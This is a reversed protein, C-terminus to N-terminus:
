AWRVNDPNWPGASFSPYGFERPQKAECQSSRSFISIVSGSKSSQVSSKRIDEIDEVGFETKFVGNASGRLGSDFFPSRDDLVVVREAELRKNYHKGEEAIERTLIISTHTRGIVTVLELGIEVEEANHFVRGPHNKGEKEITDYAVQVAEMDDTHHLGFYKAQLKNLWLRFDGNRGHGSAHIPFQRIVLTNREAEVFKGHEFFVKKIRESLDGANHICVGDDIPELVCAGRGALRLVMKHQADRNGPIASQSLLVVWDKLDAPLATSSTEPDADFYSTGESLKYTVSDKEIDTGQSGSLFAMISGPNDNKFWGKVTDSTRGAYVTPSINHQAAHWSLYDKIGKYTGQEPRPCKYPNVGHKNGIAFIKEVASGLATVKRNTLNAVQLGSERRGDNTGIIPVLAHKDPFCKNLIFVCNEVIERERPSRGMRKVSTGDQETYTPILSRSQKILSPDHDTMLKAPDWFASDHVDFWDEDFRMDGLYMYSGLIRKGNRGYAIFPTDRASHPVADVGYAISMRLRGRADKIDIVGAGKLINVRPMFPSDKKVGWKALKDKAMEWVEPTMHLTHGPSILGRKIYPIIFDLHDLHHHSIFIDKSYSLKEIIDPGGGTWESQNRIIYAGLDFIVGVKKVTGSRRDPWQTEVVKCNGGIDEGVGPVIERLNNGGMSTLVLRGERGPQVSSTQIIDLLGYEALHDLIKPYDGLKLMDAHSKNLVGLAGMFRRFTDHLMNHKFIKLGVIRAYSHDKRKSVKHVEWRSFMIETEKSNEPIDLEKQNIILDRLDQGKGKKRKKLKSRVSFKRGVEPLTGRASVEDGGVYSHDTDITNKRVGMLPRIADLPLMVEPHDQHRAAINFNTSIPFYLRVKEHFGPLPIHEGIIDEVRCDRLIEPINPIEYERDRLNIHVRRMAEVINDVARGDGISIPRGMVFLNKIRVNKKDVPECEIEFLNQLEYRGDPHIAWYRVNLDMLLGLEDLTGTSLMAIGGFSKPDIEGKDIHIRRKEYPKNSVLRLGLDELFDRSNKIM